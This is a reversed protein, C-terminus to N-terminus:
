DTLTWSDGAGLAWPTGGAAKIADTLDVLDDWDARMPEVGMEEFREPGYWIASKSNLKVM